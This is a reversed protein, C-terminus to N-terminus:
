TRRKKDSLRSEDDSEEEDSNSVMNEFWAARVERRESARAVVRVKYGRFQHRGSDLVIDGIRARLVRQNDGLDSKDKKKPM